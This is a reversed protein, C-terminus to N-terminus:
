RVRVGRAAVKAKLVQAGTAEVIAAVREKADPEVLFVVCGGGGAGCAKAGNCGARRTVSVLQDILPTTIGPANKRRATWEERMLRGTEAWDGRELAGRMACAIFAIRDFNRHIASDSDIHGKMVEWNNIGSNRPAGTYALVFRRDLEDTDVPLAQRSIGAPGYEIASVGGFMAPYYDQSGTPVRIVQAEVNQAIERIKEIKYNRGTVKNLACAVSIMLSSSGSIGAGAPAESVSEVTIGCPPAFFRVLLALLPLRYRKAAYLDDFSEFTEEAALDRSRLVIRSDDRTEIDCGTFLDVAFNLTVVNDHFLYLPWIDLTAGALDVRCPAKASVRMNVSTVFM